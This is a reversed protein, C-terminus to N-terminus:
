NFGINMGHPQQPGCRRLLMMRNIVESLEKMVQGEQHSVWAPHYQTPPPAPHQTPPGLSRQQSSIVPFDSHNVRFSESRSPRSPETNQRSYSGKRSRQQRSVAGGSPESSISNTSSNNGPPIKTFHKRLFSIYQKKGLQNLHVGDEQVKNKMHPPKLWKVKASKLHYQFQKVFEMPVGPLGSFPLIFTLSANPFVRACSAILNNLHVPWDVECHHQQHLYDNPGICWALKKVKKYSYKYEGLALAAAVVCLGSVARVAVSRSEPDIESQNAFHTNSDGIVVTSRYTPINKMANLIWTLKKAVDFDRKHPKSLKVVQESDPATSSMELMMGDLFNDGSMRPPPTGIVGRTFNDSRLDPHLKLTNAKPTAPIVMASSTDLESVVSTDKEESPKAEFFSNPLVFDTHTESKAANYTQNKSVAELTLKNNSAVVCVACIFGGRKFLTKNKSLTVQAGFACIFHASCSCLKCTLEDPAGEGCRFCEM